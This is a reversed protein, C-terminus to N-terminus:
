HQCKPNYPNKLNALRLQELAIEHARFHERTAKELESPSSALPAATYTSTVETKLPQQVYGVLFPNQEKVIAQPQPQPEANSQIRLFFGNQVQQQQTFAQTQTTQPATLPLQSNIIKLSSGDEYLTKLKLQEEQEKILRKSEALRESELRQKEELELRIREQELLRTEERLREGERQRELEAEKEEHRRLELERLRESEREREEYRIMDSIDAAKDEAKLKAQNLLLLHEERARIVEPTDQVPQPSVISKTTPLPVFPAAIPIFPQQQQEIPKRLIAENFQKLHEERARKVEPTEEVPQPQPQSLPQTHPIITKVQLQPQPQVLPQQIGPITKLIPIEPQVPQVPQAPQRLLAENYQKLHEERARKVEATEEVPKLEASITSLVKIKSPTPEFVQQFPISTKVQYKEQQGYLITPKLPEQQQLKKYEPKDVLRLQAQEAQLVKLRAENWIRLHEDRARQIEPSLGPVAEFAGMKVIQELPEFQALMNASPKKGESRLRELELRMANYRQECWARFLAIDQKEQSPVSSQIIATRLFPNVLDETGYSLRRIGYLPEPYNYALLREAGTNDLYRVYGQALGSEVPFQGRAPAYALYEYKPMAKVSGLALLSIVLLRM